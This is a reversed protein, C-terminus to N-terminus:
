AEVDELEQIIQLIDNNEEGYMKVTCIGEIDQYFYAKHYTQKPSVIIFSGIASDGKWVPDEIAVDTSLEKAMTLALNVLSLRDFKCNLCKMEMWTQFGQLQYQLDIGILTKEPAIVNEFEEETMVRDIPLGTYSSVLAFLNEININALFALEYYEMKEINKRLINL